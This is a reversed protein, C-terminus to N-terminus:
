RARDRWWVILAAVTGIALGALLGISPQNAFGGILVGALVAIAILFGGGRPGSGNAMASGQWSGGARAVLITVAGNVAVM